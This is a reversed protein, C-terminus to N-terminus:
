SGRLQKRIQSLVPIANKEDLRRQLEAIQKDRINLQNQLSNIIPMLEADRQNYGAQYGLGGGGIGGLLAGAVFAGSEGMKM